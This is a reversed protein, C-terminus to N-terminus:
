FRIETISHPKVTLKNNTIIGDFATYYFQEDTKIVMADSLDKECAFDYTVYDDSTNALLLISKNEDSAGLVYIDEDNSETYFENSLEYALGFSKFAFYTKYPSYDAPNIIGCYVSHGISGIYYCALDVSSKQLGILM